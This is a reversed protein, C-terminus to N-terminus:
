EYKQLQRSFPKRLDNKHTDPTVKIVCGHMFLEEKVAFDIASYHCKCGRDLVGKVVTKYKMFSQVDGYSQWEVDMDVLANESDTVARM